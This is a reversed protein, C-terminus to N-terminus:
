LQCACVALKGEWTKGGAQDREDHSRQIGTYHFPAKEIIRVIIKVFPHKKRKKGTRSARESPESPARDRPCHPAARRTRQGGGESSCSRCRSRALTSRLGEGACAHGYSRICLTGSTASAQPGSLRWRLRGSKTRGNPSASLSGKAAHVCICTRPSAGALALTVTIHPFPLNVKPGGPSLTFTVSIPERGRQRQRQGEATAMM